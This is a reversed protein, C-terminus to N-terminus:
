EELVNNLFDDIDAVQYTVAEYLDSIGIIQPFRWILNGYNDFFGLITSITYSSQGSVMLHGYMINDEINNYERKYIRLKKGKYNTEFIAGINKTQSPESKINKVIEWTLDGEQTMELLKAILKVLKDNNNEAVEKDGNIMM